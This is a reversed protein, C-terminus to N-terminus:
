SLKKMVERWFTKRSIKEWAIYRSIRVNVKKLFSGMISFFLQTVRNQVIIDGQLKNVMKGSTLNSM